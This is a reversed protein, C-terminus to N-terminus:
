RPRDDRHAPPALARLGRQFEDIGLEWSRPRNRRVWLALSLVASFGLAALVYALSSM